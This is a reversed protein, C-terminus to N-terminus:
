IRPLVASNKGSNSEYEFEKVAASVDNDDQAYRSNGIKPKEYRRRRFKFWTLIFLNRKLVLCLIASLLVGILCVMFIVSYKLSDDDSSKEVVTVGFPTSNSRVPDAKIKFFGVKKNVGDFISVHGRFCPEGLIVTDNLTQYLNLTCSYKVTSKKKKLCKRILFQWDVHFLNESGQFDLIVKIHEFHLPFRMNTCKVIGLKQSLSCNAESGEINMFELFQDLVKKPLGMLSSSLTLVAMKSQQFDIIKAPHKSYNSLGIALSKLNFSWYHQFDNIKIWNIKSHRHIHLLEDLNGLCLESYEPESQSYYNETAVFTISFAKKGLILSQSGLSLSGDAKFLTDNNFHAVVMEFKQFVTSNGTSEKLKLTSKIVEGSFNGYRNSINLSKNLKSDNNNSFPLKSASIWSFKSTLDLALTMPIPKDRYNISSNVNYQLNKFFCLETPTDELCFGQTQNEEKTFTEHRSLSFRRFGLISPIFCCLLYIKILSFIEM